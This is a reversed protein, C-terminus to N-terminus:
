KVEEFIKRQTEYWELWAKSKAHCEKAKAYNDTTNELLDTLDKKNTDLPLLLDCPKALAEPVQPFSMTVPVSTACGTLFVLSALFLNRM